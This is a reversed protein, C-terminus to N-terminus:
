KHMSLKLLKRVGIIYSVPREYHAAILFVIGLLFFLLNPLWVGVLLPLYGTEVFAEGGIRLLYYASAILLGLGFGRSKVARHNRIGLPFALLAFFICSLPMSFKKHAEISLERVVSPSLKPNKRKEILETFTMESSSKAEESILIL